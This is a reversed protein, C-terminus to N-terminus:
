KMYNDLCRHFCTNTLLCVQKAISGQTDMLVNVNMDTSEETRVTEMFVPHIIVITSTQLLIKKTRLGDIM